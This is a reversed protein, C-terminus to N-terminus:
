RCLLINNIDKVNLGNRELVSKINNAISDVTSKAHYPKGNVGKVWELKLEWEIRYKQLVKKKKSRTAQDSVQQNGEDDTETM